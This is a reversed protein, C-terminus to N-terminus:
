RAQQQASPHGVSQNIPINTNLRPDSTNEMLLAVLEKIIEYCAYDPFEMVQSADDTADIEDQSLGIFIPVRLYDVFLKTPKATTIDDGCRIQIKIPNIFGMRDGEVRSGNTLSALTDTNHIYYFPKRLSPKGYYNNLLGSMMGSQLKRVGKTIIAGAANCGSSILYTIQAVCDLIHFYDAPLVGDYAAAQISNANLTLSTIRATGSLVGLDDTLQQTTEYQTYRKDVYSVIAKNLFYVFDDRLLSPAEVKNLEILLNDYVQRVTM